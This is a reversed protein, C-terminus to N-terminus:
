CFVDCIFLLSYFHTIKGLFYQPIDYSENVQLSEYVRMFDRLKEDFETFAGNVQLSEYVRM